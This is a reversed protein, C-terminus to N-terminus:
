KIDEAHIPLDQLFCENAADPPSGFGFIRDVAASGPNFM